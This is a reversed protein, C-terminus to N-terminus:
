WHFRRPAVEIMQGLSPAVRVLLASRWRQELLLNDQRHGSGEIRSSTVEGDLCGVRRTHFVDGQELLRLCGQVRPQLGVMSAITIQDLHSVDNQHQVNTSSRGIKRGDQSHFGVSLELKM